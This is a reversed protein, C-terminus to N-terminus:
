IKSPKELAADSFPTLLITIYKPRILELIPRITVLTSALQKKKKKKKKDVKILSHCPFQLIITEREPFIFSNQM